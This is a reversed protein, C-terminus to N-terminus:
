GEENDDEDKTLDIEESEDSEDSSEFDSEHQKDDGETVKRKAMKQAKKKLWRSRKRKKKEEETMKERVDMVNEYYLKHFMILRGLKEYNNEAFKAIFRLYNIGSLLRILNYFITMVSEDQQINTSRHKISETLACKQMWWGFLIKLGGREVLRACMSPSQVTSLQIVKLMSPIFMPLSKILLLVLDIGQQAEFQKKGEAHLLCYCLVDVCNEVVEEEEMSLTINASSASSTSSSSAAQQKQQLKRKRFQALMVLITEVGGEKIVENTGTWNKNDTEESSELSGVVVDFSSVIIALLEASYHWITEAKVPSATLPSDNPNSSKDKQSNTGRVADMVKRLSNVSPGVSIRSLLWRILSFSNSSSNSNMALDRLSSQVANPVVEMLNELFLLIKIIGEQEELIGEDLRHLVGIMDVEIKEKLIEEILVIANQESLILDPDTLENILDVVDLVIDINEHLLLASLLSLTGSSVLLPYHAPYDTLEKLTKISEDLNVESEMFLEPEEKHLTRQTENESVKKAFAQLLKKISKENLVPVEEM